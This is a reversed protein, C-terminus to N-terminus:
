FIDIIMNDLEEKSSPQRDIMSEQIIELGLEEKM